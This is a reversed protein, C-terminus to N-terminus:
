GTSSVVYEESTPCPAHCSSLCAVLFLFLKGKTCFGFATSGTLEEITRESIEFDDKSPRSFVERLSM